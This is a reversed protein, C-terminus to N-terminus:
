HHWISPEYTIETEADITDGHRKKEDCAYKFECACEVTNDRLWEVFTDGHAERYEEATMQTPKSRPPMQAVTLARKDPPLACANGAPAGMLHWAHAQARETSEECHQRPKTKRALM